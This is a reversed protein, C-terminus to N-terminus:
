HLSHLFQKFLIDLLEVMSEKDDGLDIVFELYEKQLDEGGTFVDVLADKICILFALIYDM